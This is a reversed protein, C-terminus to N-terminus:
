RNAPDDPLLPRTWRLGITSLDEALVDDGEPKVGYVLWAVLDDFAQTREATEFQCHNPRRIARQVLLDSTGVALTKRRYSQELSFPVFADGTTHLTLVPVQIRGSFDAFVPNEAASRSGPAPDFRRIERNLEAETLGLNDDIRYWIYRTSIARTPPAASLQPPGGFLLNATYRAALGQERMPLDGGMLYKVVSEFQQGRATFSGPRGMAPLWQEMVLRGFAAANPAELLPVGSLYEAAATYAALYDLVETGTLVGCEPLAAQYVDPHLELSAITVHGGMSTGYLMTWRPPGFELVFLDRLALTDAVGFDPRYGNARYSSAAWAYGNEILHRRIPVDSVFLDPGEGRYGHAYMVLAGNWNAPVEMRYVGGSYAGFRALAGPLPSFAPDRLVGYANRGIAPPLPPPTPAPTATPAPTPSPPQGAVRTAPALALAGALVLALALLAAIAWV